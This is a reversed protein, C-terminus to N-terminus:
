GDHEGSGEFLVLTFDDQFRGSRPLRAQTALREILTRGHLTQASRVVEDWGAYKWVGDSMVLVSWPAVLPQAFPVFVAGGSGVPPNKVQRATLEQIGSPGSVLARSDGSSAGWVSGGVVGCGVLTTYGAEPDAAM